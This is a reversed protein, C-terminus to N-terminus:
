RCARAFIMPAGKGCATSELCLYTSLIAAVALTVFTVRAAISPNARVIRM